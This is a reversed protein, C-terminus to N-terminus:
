GERWRLGVQPSGRQLRLGVRECQARLVAGPAVAQLGCPAAVLRHDAGCTPCGKRASLPKWFGRSTTVKRRGRFAVLLEGAKRGSLETPEVGKTVYKSLYNAASGVDNLRRGRKKARARAEGPDVVDVVLAGPVADRWAAHLEAYPVWSSIVAVHAHLHGEGNDGSTAEWVLAHHGWWGGYSARKSLERWGEGLVRRDEVLDGSHPATLTILYIGPAMGRRGGRNWMDRAARLHPGM